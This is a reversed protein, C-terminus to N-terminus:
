TSNRRSGLQLQTVSSSPREATARRQPLPAHCWFPASCGRQKNATLVVSQDARATQSSSVPGGFMKPDLAVFM